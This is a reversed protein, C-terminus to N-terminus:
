GRHPVRSWGSSPGAAQIHKILHDLLTRVATPLERGAMSQVQVSRRLMEPNRVPIAALKDSNLRRRVTLFGVLTVGGGMRVFSELTGSYNTVLAPEFTLGNLSVCIDFLQRITADQDMLALPYPLLDALWVGDRGALPHDAAVLAYIPQQESFEVKVDKEPKLSYTIALDAAGDRVQETAAAPTTVNLRFRVGPYTGRFSVIVEPIFERAFGESSALRVTSGRLAQVGRVDALVHESELSSRRAYAALVEGAESLVMGRPRREFLPAGVDQELKTIQRSIASAAVHLRESAESISGTRAVELFYRLPTSVLHM